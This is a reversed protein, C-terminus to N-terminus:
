FENTFCLPIYALRYLYDQFKTMELTVSTWQKLYSPISSCWAALPKSRPLQFSCLVSHMRNGKKRCVVGWKFLSPLIVIRPPAFIARSSVLDVCSRCQVELDNLETFLKPSLKLLRLVYKTCALSRGSTCSTLRVFRSQPLSPLAVVFHSFEQWVNTPMSKLAPPATGGRGSGGSSANRKRSM